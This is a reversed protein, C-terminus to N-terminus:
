GPLLLCSSVLRECEVLKTDDMGVGIEGIDCLGCGVVLLGQGQGLCQAHARKHGVAVAAEAGQIALSSPQLARMRFQRHSNM